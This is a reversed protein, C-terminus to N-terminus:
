VRTPNGRHPWAMLVAVADKLEVRRPELGLIRCYEEGLRTLNDEVVQQLPGEYGTELLEARAAMIAALEAHPQARENRHAVILPHLRDPHLAWWRELGGNALFRELKAELKQIRTM